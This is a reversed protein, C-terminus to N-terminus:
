IGFGGFDALIRRQRPDHPQHFLGLPTFGRHLFQRINM